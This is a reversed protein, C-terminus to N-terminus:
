SGRGAFKIETEYTTRRDPMTIVNLNSFNQQMHPAVRRFLWPPTLISPPKGFYDAIPSDYRFRRSFRRWFHLLQLGIRPGSDDVMLAIIPPLFRLDKSVSSISFYKGCIQIIQQAIDNHLFISLPDCDTEECGIELLSKINSYAEYPVKKLCRGPAIISQPKLYMLQTNICIASGMESKCGPVDNELHYSLPWITTSLWFYRGFVPINGIPYHYFPLIIRYLVALCQSDQFRLLSSFCNRASDQQCLRFEFQHFSRDLWRGILWSWVFRWILVDEM